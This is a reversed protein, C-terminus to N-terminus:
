PRLRGVGRPGILRVRRPDDDDLVLVEHRREVVFPRLQRRVVDRHGAFVLISTVVVLLLAAL